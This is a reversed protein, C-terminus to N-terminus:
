KPIYYVFNIDTTDSNSDVLFLPIKLKVCLFKFIFVSMSHTFITSSIVENTYFLFSVEQIKGKVEATSMGQSFSFITLLVLTLSPAFLCQDVFAKKM